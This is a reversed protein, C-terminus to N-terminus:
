SSPRPRDCYALMRSPKLHLFFFNQWVMAITHIYSQHLWPSWILKHFFWGFELGVWKKTLILVYSEGTYFIGLFTLENQLKFFQGFYIIVWYTFLPGVQDGQSCASSV